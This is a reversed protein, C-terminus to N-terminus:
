TMCYRKADYPKWAGKGEIRLHAEYVELIQMDSKRVIQAWPAYGMNPLEKKLLEKLDWNNAASGILDEVGGHPYYAAGAFLLLRDAM